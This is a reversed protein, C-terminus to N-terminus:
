SYVRVLQEAPDLRPLIASRHATSSGPRHTAKVSAKIASWGVRQAGTSPWGAPPKAAGGLAPAPHRALRGLLQRKDAARVELVDEPALPDAIKM